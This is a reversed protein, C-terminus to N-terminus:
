FEVMDGAAMAKQTSIIPAPYGAGDFYRGTIADYSLNVMGIRGTTKHRIKQVHIEVARSESQDRWVAICNDAKNRWHASGSVDYPTPVPYKGNAEKFLKAPHAVLWVHV